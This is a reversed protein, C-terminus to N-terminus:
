ASLLPALLRGRDVIKAPKFRGTSLAIQTRVSAAPAGQTLSDVDISTSMAKAKATRPRQTAGGRLGERREQSSHSRPWFHNSGKPISRPHPRRLPRSCRRLRSCPRSRPFPRPPLERLFHLWPRTRPSSKSSRLTPCRRWPFRRLSRCRSGMERTRRPSRLRPTVSRVPM